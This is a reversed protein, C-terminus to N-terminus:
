NQKKKGEDSKADVDLRERCFFSFFFFFTSINVSARNGGLRLTRAFYWSSRKKWRISSRYLYQMESECDSMVLINM